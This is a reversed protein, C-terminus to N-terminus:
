GRPRRHQLLHPRGLCTAVRVGPEAGRHPEPGLGNVHTFDGGIVLKTHDATM